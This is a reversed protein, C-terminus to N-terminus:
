CYTGSAIVNSHSIALLWDDCIWRDCSGGMEAAVNEDAELYSWLALWDTEFGYRPRRDKAFRTQSKYRFPSKFVAIGGALRTFGVRVKVKGQRKWITSSVDRNIRDLEM